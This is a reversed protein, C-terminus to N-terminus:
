DQVDKSKSKLFPIDVEMLVLSVVMLFMGVYSRPRLIENAFIFAIVSAFVPELTFILGVHSATTYKQQIAQVVFAIGTCFLGLFLAATWVSPSNPFHPEEIILSLILTVVGVFALEFVGMSLADVGDTKVAKETIILDIAYCLPVGLCIIDGIEPKLTDSLTLLALGFTCLVLCAFLKKSPRIGKFLFELLPTVAVPLACIFAANSLSTESIGYAYFIYTGTLAIGILISYKITILNVKVIKKFFVIGLILFASIFRFANLFM